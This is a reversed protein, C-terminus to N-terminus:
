VERLVIIGNELSMACDTGTVTDTLTLGNAKGVATEGSVIKDIQTQEVNEVALMWYEGETPTKGVSDKKAIWCKSDHSVIDLKEYSNSATWAGKPVLGARGADAM